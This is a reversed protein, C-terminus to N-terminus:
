ADHGDELARRGNHRYGEDLLNDYESIPWVEFILDCLFNSKDAALIEHPLITEENAQKQKNKQM